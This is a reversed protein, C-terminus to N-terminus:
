GAHLQACCTNPRFLDRELKSTQRSVERIYSVLPHEGWLISFLRFSGELHNQLRNQRRPSDCPHHCSPSEAYRTSGEWKMEIVCWAWIDYKEGAKKRKKKKGKDLMETEGLSLLMVRTSTNSWWAGWGTSHEGAGCSQGFTRYKGELV